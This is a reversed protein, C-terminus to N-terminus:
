TDKNTGVAQSKRIADIIVQVKVSVLIDDHKEIIMAALRGIPLETQEFRPMTAFNGLHIIPGGSLGPPHFTNRQKGISSESVKEYKM